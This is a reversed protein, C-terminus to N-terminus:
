PPLSKAGEVFTHPSVATITELKIGSYFQQKPLLFSFDSFLRNCIYSFLKKKSTLENHKTSKIGSGALIAYFHGTILM